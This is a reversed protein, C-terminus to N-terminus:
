WFRKFTLGFSKGDTSPSVSWTSGQYTFFMSSFIGIAAGAGVDHWYHHDSEVRSYATFAALAYAPVGCTWGYRARMFEASAFAVASHGSPFSQHGQGNPRTEYVISKLALVTLGQVAFAGTFRLAGDWDKDILTLGMATAPLAYQLVDGTAEIGDARAQGAGLLFSVALGFGFVKPTGKM